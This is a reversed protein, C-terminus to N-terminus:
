GLCADLIVGILCGRKGTLYVGFNVTTSRDIHLWAMKVHTELALFTTKGTNQRLLSGGGCRSYGNLVFIVVPPSCPARSTADEFM